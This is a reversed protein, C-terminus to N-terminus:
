WSSELVYSYSEKPDIIRDEHYKQLISGYADIGIVKIEPNQEKLYKATGSITGGTGMASLFHTIKGETQEWIEPGTTQYHAESNYDNFYQNIYISNKIDKNLRDALSHHSEPHDYSVKSSCIRVEAGLSEMLQIKEKSIKDPVCLICNYGKVASVMAM